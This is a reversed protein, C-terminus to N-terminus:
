HYNHVYGHMGLEKFKGRPPKTIFTLALTNNSNKTRMRFCVKDLSSLLFLNFIFFSGTKTKVM